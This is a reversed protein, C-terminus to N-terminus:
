KISEKMFSFMQAYLKHRLAVDRSGGHGSNLDTLLLIASNSTNANRVAAVYKAQQDIPTQRDFYGGIVLINPYAQTRINQYPDYQRIYSFVDEDRPDGWEKYEGTVLPLDPNMMTHIVDVFPHDLIVADFLFPYENAAWAAILGGASQGYGILHVSKKKNKHKLHRAVDIYDYMSNLKQNTRGQLYWDAGLVATGRVHVYATAIGRKALLADIASFAPLDVAGYAGYVKLLIGQMGGRAQPNQLLTVPIQAGDRAKVFLREVQLQKLLHSDRVTPGQNRRVLTSPLRIHESQWPRAANSRSISVENHEADLVHVSLVDTPHIIPHMKWTSAGLLLFHVQSFANNLGEVLLYSDTASITQAQLGSPLNINEWTPEILSSTKSLTNNSQDLRYWFTGAKILQYNTNFRIPLVLKVKSVISDQYWYWASETMSQTYVLTQGNTQSLNLDFTEDPEELLLEDQVRGFQHVYLRNGRERDNTRVYLLTSDTVWRHDWVQSISDLVTLTGPKVIALSSSLGGPPQHVVSLLSRNENLRVQMIWNGSLEAEFRDMALLEMRSSDSNCYHLIRGRISDELIRQTGKRCTSNTADPEIYFENLGTFFRRQSDRDQLFYNRAYKNEKKLYRLLVSASDPNSTWHYPDTINYTHKHPVTALVPEPLDEVAGSRAFQQQLPIEASLEKKLKPSLPFQRLYATTDWFLSDFDVDAFRVASYRTSKYVREDPIPAVAHENSTIWLEKIRRSQWPTESNVFAMTKEERVHDIQWRKGVHKYEVKVQMTQSKLRNFFGFNREVALAYEFRAVAYTEIDIYLLGHYIAFKNKRSQDLHFRRDSQNPRFRIVHCLTGNVFQAGEKEFTYKGLLKPRLFDYQYKIKDYKTLSLPGGAMAIDIGTKGSYDSSRKQIIEMRDEPANFDNLLQSEVMDAEIDFAYEKNHYWPNWQKRDLKPHPYGTYYLGVSAETLQVFQENEKATERYFGTLSRTDTGYNNAAAKIARKIIKRAPIPKQDTVTATALEIGDSLSIIVISDIPFTLPIRRTTYGVYSVLLTDEAHLEDPLDCTAVGQVDTTAGAASNTLWLNAYVLAQSSEADQVLVKLTSQAGLRVANFLVLLLVVLKAIKQM